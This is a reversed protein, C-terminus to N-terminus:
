TEIKRINFTVKKIGTSFCDIGQYKGDYNIDFLNFMKSNDGKNKFYPISTINTGRESFKMSTINFRSDQGGGGVKEGCYINETINEVDYFETVYGDVVKFYGEFVKDGNECLFILISFYNVIIM